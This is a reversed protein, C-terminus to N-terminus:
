ENEVGVKKKVLAKQKKYKVEMKNHLKHKGLEKIRVLEDKFNSLYVTCERYDKNIIEKNTLLKMM